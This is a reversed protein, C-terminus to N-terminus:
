EFTASVLGYITSAFLHSVGEPTVPYALAVRKGRFESLWRRRRQCPTQTLETRLASGCFGFAGRM